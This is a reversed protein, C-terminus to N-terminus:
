GGGRCEGEEEDEDDSKTEPEVQSLLDSVDAWLKDEDEGGDEHNENEKANEETKNVQEKEGEPKVPEAKAKKGQIKELLKDDGFKFYCDFHSNSRCHVRLAREEDSSQPLYTRCVECYFAEVKRIFEVGLNSEEDSKKEKKEEAM